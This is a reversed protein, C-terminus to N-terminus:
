EGGKSFGSDKALDWAANRLDAEAQTDHRPEKGFVEVWADFMAMNSDWKEHTACCGHRYDTTPLAAYKKNQEDIWRLQSDTGWTQIVRIFANALKQVDEM